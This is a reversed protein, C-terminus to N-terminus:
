VIQQVIGKRKVIVRHFLLFSLIAFELTNLGKDSFRGELGPRLVTNGNHKRISDAKVDLQLQDSPECLTKAM